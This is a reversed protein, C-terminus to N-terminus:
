AAAADDNADADADDAVRPSVIAILERHADSDREVRGWRKGDRTAGSRRLRARAVKPSINLERAIDAVSVTTDDDTDAATILDILESKTTKTNFEVNLTQAHERLEAVTMKNINTM